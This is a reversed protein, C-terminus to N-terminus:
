PMLDNSDTEQMVNIEKSHVECRIDTLADNSEEPIQYFIWILPAPPYHDYFIGNETLTKDLRLNAAEDTLRLCSKWTYNSSNENYRLFKQQVNAITDEECVVIEYMDFTINNVVRIKREQSTIKGLLLSQDKWWLRDTLKNRIKVSPFVPVRIGDKSIRYKATNSDNFYISLDKGAFALLLQYIKQSQNSDNFLVTINFVNGHVIVWASDIRNHVVVEDRLFFDKSM